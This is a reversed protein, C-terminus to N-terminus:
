QTAFNSLLREFLPRPYLDRAQCVGLKAVKEGDLGMQRCVTLFRAQHDAAHTPDRIIAPLIEGSLIMTARRQQLRVLRQRRQRRNIPYSSSM